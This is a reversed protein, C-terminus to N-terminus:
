FYLALLFYVIFPFGFLWLSYAAIPIKEMQAKKIALYLVVSASYMFLGIIIWSM